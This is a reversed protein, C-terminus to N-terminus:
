VGDEGERSSLRDFLFLAAGIVAAAVAGGLLGVLWPPLGGGDDPPLVADSAPRATPTAPQSESNAPPTQAPTGGPQAPQANPSPSATPVAPNNAADILALDGCKTNAAPPTLTLLYTNVARDVCSNGGLYATHGEGGYSVLVGSVLQKSVAVGWEYPTAPDGTTSVVVIPPAGQARPTTVPDPKAPWELCSLGNAVAAGFRPSRASFRPAERVFEAYTVPLASDAYDICNVALNAETQNPYSGDRNRQLYDDTLRVLGSGDGDLAADIASALEPWNAKNYLPSIIGYFAEGPGAPRDQGRAAIPKAEARKLVEDIAAGPDGFQTLSCRAQRCDEIFANLAREFGGAQQLVVEEVGLSLDVAGDLVIARVKAPFMDAYVQGIVTGYSYGLYTLKADGVAERIREMDRAVNKTGVFPLVTAAKGLCERALAMNQRALNDWEQQNDPTPDAAIYAQLNAHCSIAASAGIGRPDFGVIDFRDRIETSFARSIGRAVDVGSAGPGGPNILLSGIRQSQNRAPLRILALDITAGSPKTYDLPVTLTACEFSNGCATWKLPTQAEVAAPRSGGLVTVVTVLSLVLLFARM